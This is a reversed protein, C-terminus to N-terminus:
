KRTNPGDAPTPLPMISPWHERVAVARFVFAVLV